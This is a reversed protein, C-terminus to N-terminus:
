EVSLPVRGQTSSPGYHSNANRLRAGVTHRAKVLADLGLIRQARESLMTFIGAHHTAPEDM